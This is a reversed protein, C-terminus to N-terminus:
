GRESSRTKAAVVVVVGLTELSNVDTFEFSPRVYLTM